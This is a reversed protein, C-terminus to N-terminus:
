IGKIEGNATYLTFEKGANTEKRQSNLRSAVKSNGHEQEGVLDSGSVNRSLNGLSQKSTSEKPQNNALNSSSQKFQNVVNLQTQVASVANSLKGISAPTEKVQSQTKESNEVRPKFRNKLEDEFSTEAAAKPKEVM